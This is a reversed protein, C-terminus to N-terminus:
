WGRGGVVCALAAVDVTVSHCIGSVLNEPAKTLLGLGAKVVIRVPEWGPSLSRERSGRSEGIDAERGHAGFYTRM